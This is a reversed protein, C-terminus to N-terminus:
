RHQLVSLVCFPIRNRQCMIWNSYFLVYKTAAILDNETAVPSDDQQVTFPWYSLIKSDTIYLAKVSNHILILSQEELLEPNLSKCKCFTLKISTKVTKHLAKLITAMKLLTVRSRFVQKVKWNHPCLFVCLDDCLCCSESKTILHRHFLNTIPNGLTLGEKM